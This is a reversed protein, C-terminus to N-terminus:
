TILREWHSEDQHESFIARVQPENYVFADVLLADFQKGRESRLLEFAEELPWPEKYPRKTTLADFVDAVGVIRGMLPIEDGSLGMPYGKGDYREHHTLAIMAGTLLFSSRAAELMGHGNTTHRRMIAMEEDDLRGPKLLISDPIGIKGVDHLASAHFVTEQFSESQGIMRAILRSYHAVRAIHSGTDQDKYESAKGLVYLAEYERLIIEGITSRIEDEHDAFAHERQSQFRAAHVVHEARRALELPTCDLDLTDVAGAEILSSRDRSSAPRALLALVPLRLQDTVFSIVERATAASADVIVLVIDWAAMAPVVLEDAREVVRLAIGGEIAARRIQELEYEGDTMLLASVPRDFNMSEGM